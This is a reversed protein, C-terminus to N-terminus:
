SFVNGSGLLDQLMKSQTETTKNDVKKEYYIKGKRKKTQVISNM